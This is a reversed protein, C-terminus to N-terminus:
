TAKKGARKGNEADAYISTVGASVVAEAIVQGRQQAAVANEALLAGAHGALVRTQSPGIATGIGNGGGNVTGTRAATDDAM